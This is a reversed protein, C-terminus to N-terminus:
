TLQLLLFTRVPAGVQYLPDWHIDAVHWFSGAYACAVLLLLLAALVRQM